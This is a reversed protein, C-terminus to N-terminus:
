GTLTEVKQGGFVMLVKKFDNATSVQSYVQRYTDGYAPGDQTVIVLWRDDAPAKPLPRDAAAGIHHLMSQTVHLLLETDSDPNHVFGIVRPMRASVGKVRRVRIRNGHVVGEIDQTTEQALWNRILVELTAVTQSPLRIPATMTVIVAEGDPVVASLATQLSLIVRQAVKDFRLRPKSLNRQEVIGQGITTFEVAIRKGATTLYAHSSDDESGEWAASVHRAVLEVAMQEQQTLQSM